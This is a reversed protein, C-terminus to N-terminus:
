RIIGIQKVFMKHLPCFKKSACLQEAYDEGLVVTVEEDSLPEFCVEGRDRTDFLVVGHFGYNTGTFYNFLVKECWIGQEIANNNLAELRTLCNGMLQDSNDKELFDIVQRYTPRKLLLDYEQMVQEEGKVLGENYAVAKAEELAKECDARASAVGSKYGAEFYMQGEEVSTCGVLLLALMVVIALLWRM